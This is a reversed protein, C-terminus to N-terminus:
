RRQLGNGSIEYRNLTQVIEDDVRYQSAIQDAEGKRNTLLYLLILNQASETQQKNIELATHFEQEAQAYNGNLMLRYGNDNRIDANVPDLQRAMGMYRDVDDFASRKVANLALGHYASASLCSNILGEYVKDAEHVQGTASLADAQLLRFDPTNAKVSELHALASRARGDNYHEFALDLVLGDSPSIADGCKGNRQNDSMTVSRENRAVLPEASQSETFINSTSTCATQVLAFLVPLYIRLM